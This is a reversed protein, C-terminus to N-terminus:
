GAISVILTLLIICLGLIGSRFSSWPRNLATISWLLIALCVAIIIIGATIGLPGTATFWVLWAISALCIGILGFLWYKESSSGRELKELRQRTCKVCTCAPPHGGYYNQRYYEDERKTM